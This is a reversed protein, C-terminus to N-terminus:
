YKPFKRDEFSKYFPTYEIKLFKIELQLCLTILVLCICITSILLSLGKKGHLDALEFYM